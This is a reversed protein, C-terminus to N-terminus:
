CTTVGGLEAAIQLSPPLPLRASAPLKRVDVASMHPQHVWHRVWTALM